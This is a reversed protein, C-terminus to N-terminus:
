VVDEQTPKLAVWFSSSNCSTKNGLSAVPERLVGWTKNRDTEDNKICSNPLHNVYMEMNLLLRQKSYLSVANKFFHM